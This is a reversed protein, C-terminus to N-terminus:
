GKEARKSAVLSSKKVKKGPNCLGIKAPSQNVVM